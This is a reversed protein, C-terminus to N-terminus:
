NSGPFRIVNSPMKMERPPRSEREVVRVALDAAHWAAPKRPRVDRDIVRDALQLIRRLEHHTPEKAIFSLKCHAERSM